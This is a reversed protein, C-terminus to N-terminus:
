APREAFSSICFIIQRLYVIQESIVHTVNGKSLEKACTANKLDMKSQPEVNAPPGESRFLQHLALCGYPFSVAPVFFFVRFSLTLTSLCLSQWSFFLTLPHPYRLTRLVRPFLVTLLIIIDCFSVLLCMILSRLSRTWGPIVTQELLRGNFYRPVRLGM